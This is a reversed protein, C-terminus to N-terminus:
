QRVEKINNMHKRVLLPAHQIHELNLQVNYHGMPTVRTTMRPARPAPGGPYPVYVWILTRSFIHNQLDGCPTIVWSKIITLLTQQSAGM